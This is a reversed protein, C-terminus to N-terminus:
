HGHAEKKFFQIIAQNYREHNFSGVSHAIHESLHKIIVPATAKRVYLSTLFQQQIQLRQTQEHEVKHAHTQKNKDKEQQYLAWRAMKEQLSIILADQQSRAFAVSEAQNKFKQIADLQQTRENIKDAIDKYIGQLIRSYLVYAILLLISIFNFWKFLLGLNIFM